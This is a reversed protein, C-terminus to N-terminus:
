ESTIFKLNSHPPSVIFCNEEVAKFLQDLPLKRRELDVRQLATAHALRLVALPGRKRCPPYNLGALLGAVFSDGAGTANTKHGEASFCPVFLLKDLWAEEEEVDMGLRRGIREHVVERESSTIMFAGNEGLSIVVMASGLHLLNRGIDVVEEDSVVDEVSAEHKFADSVERARKILEDAKGVISAAEELNAHFLSLYPMSPQLIARHKATNLLSCTDVSLFLHPHISAIRQMLAALEEGQLKPLLPPYGFHFVDFDKLMNPIHVMDEGFLTEKSLAANTGRCFYIGRKGDGYVPLVSLSTPFGAMQQVMKTGIGAETWIKLLNEGNMDQGVATVLEVQQGLEALARGTNSTSCGPIFQTGEVLALGERTPLTEANLLFLDLCCCGSCIYRGTRQRSEM